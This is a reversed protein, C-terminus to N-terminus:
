VGVTIVDGLTNCSDIATKFQALRENLQEKNLPMTGGSLQGIKENTTQSLTAIAKVIADRDADTLTVKSNSYKSVEKVFSQDIEQLEQASNAQRISENYNNLSTIFSNIETQSKSCASTLSAIAILGVAMLSTLFHKAKM